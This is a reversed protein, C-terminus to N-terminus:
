EHQWLFYLTFSASAIGAPAGTVRALSIVSVGENTASLVILTNDIYDFAAIYKGLKKSMAKRQTESNFNEEIKIVENLRFRTENSLNLYKQLTEISNCESMRLIILYKITM